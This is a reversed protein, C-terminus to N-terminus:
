LTPPSEATFSPLFWDRRDLRAVRDTDFGPPHESIWHFVMQLADLLPADTGLRQRLRKWDLHGGQYYLLNLLDPWDTRERQLVYLKAWLLEEPPIICLEFGQYPIRRCHTFWAEDVETIYNAFAWIIDVIVEGRESRYIWGRDYPLRPFLDTFGARLLLAEMRERDRPRIYFDIDKTSRQLPTYAALGLGGGLLTDIGAETALAQVETLTAYEEESLFRLWDPCAASLPPPTFDPKM